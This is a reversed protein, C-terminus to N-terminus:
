RARGIAEGLRVRKEFGAATAEFVEQPFEVRDKKFLLVITSGGFEFRGKEEGRFFEGKEQLNCIKGVLLAGVEVQVVDGFHRTHLLTYERSNRHFVPVSGVAIPNVTHFVGPVPCNATKTGSDFYIYRHYDSVTLRLVACVGGEFAAALAPNELLDAASYPTNKVTFTEGPYLRYCSLLGDCPSILATPDPDLSRAGPVLRRTFYDNFSRYKRDEAEETNIKNKRIFSPILACSLRTSLFAGATKSIWPRVLLKLIVRGLRTHYFFRLDKPVEPKLYGNKEPEQDTM